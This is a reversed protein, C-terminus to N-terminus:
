PKIEGRSDGLVQKLHKEKPLLIYIYIHVNIIIIIEQHVLWKKNYWLRLKDKKITDLKFDVKYSILM